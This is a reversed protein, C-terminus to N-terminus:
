SKRLNQAEIRIASQLLALGNDELWDGLTEWGDEGIVVEFNKSAEILSEVSLIPISRFSPIHGYDDGSVLTGKKGDLFDKAGQKNFVRIDVGIVRACNPCGPYVDVTVFNKRDTTFLLDGRVESCLCECM